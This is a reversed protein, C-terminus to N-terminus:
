RMEKILFYFDRGATVTGIDTEDNPLAKQGFSSLSVLTQRQRPEYRPEDISVPYELKKQNSNGTEIRADDGVVTQSKFLVPKM